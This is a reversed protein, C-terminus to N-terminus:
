KGEGETGYFPFVMNFQNNTSRVRYGIRIEPMKGNGGSKEAEVRIDTIRPEWRALADHVANELAALNEARNESFVFEGAITGFEPLMVREGIDTRLIIEVSQRIDEEAEAMVIRRTIPDTRVPFAFGRGMFEKGAM